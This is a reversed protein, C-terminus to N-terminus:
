EIWHADVFKLCQPKRGTEKRGKGERRSGKWRGERNLGALPRPFATLEELRDLFLRVV